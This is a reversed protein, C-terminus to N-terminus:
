ISNNPPSERYRHIIQAMLPRRALLDDLELGSITLNIEAPDVFMTDLYTPLDLSEPLVPDYAVSDNSCILHAGWYIRHEFYKPILWGTNGEDDIAKGRLDLIVPKAGSSQKRFIEAIDLAILGCSYPYRGTLEIEQHVGSLYKSLETPISDSM